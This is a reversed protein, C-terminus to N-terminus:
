VSHADREDERSEDKENEEMPFRPKNAKDSSPHKEEQPVSDFSVVRRKKLSWNVQQDPWHPDGLLQPREEGTCM